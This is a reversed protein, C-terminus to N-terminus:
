FIKYTIDMECNQTQENLSEDFIAVFVEAKKVSDILISKFVPTIGFNVVYRM